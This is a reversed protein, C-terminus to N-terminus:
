FARRQPDWDAALAAIEETPAGVGVPHIEERGPSFSHWPSSDEGSDPQLQAREARIVRDLMVLRDEGSRDWSDQTEQCERCVPEREAIAEDLDRELGALMSKILSLKNAASKLTPTNCGVLLQFELNRQAKVVGSRCNKVQTMTPAHFQPSM